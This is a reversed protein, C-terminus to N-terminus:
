PDALNHIEVPEFDEELKYGFVRSYFYLEAGLVREVTGAKRFGHGEGEFELYAYPLNQEQLAAALERAQEPPVIEDESGQFLILPCSLENTHHIPSRKRYLHEAQPYPAILTDLYSAEFKHTHAALSIADAVGYYSAGATFVDHFTLACLAVYGGASGGHIILREPDVIGQQALHRAAQVCEYVDIEGFHGKLRDRYARGYGTSGSYNVDVVAFGRSTWYQTELLLQVAAASTPGGHVTVILPPLSGEPGEHSGSRPPYFFAHATKGDKSPFEVSEPTSLFDRDLEISAPRHVLSIHKAELDLRYLAQSQRPSSAIFALENEDNARMHVPYFATFPTEVPILEREDPDIVGLHDIGERTYICAIRGDSLFDYRSQGLAWAPSGLEAEIPALAEVEDGGWRYLNWWGTRDSVFYLKGDPGWEPQYVAEQPGGAVLATETLSGDEGFAAVWLATGDWPMRPHDWSLYCLVDGNAKFRPAAYFDHGAAVVTPPRHGDSPLAVLENAPPGEKRHDERVCVLWSGDPHLRGDAYRLARAWAPEPTLPLPEGEPDLRYLRQDADNSFFLVGDSVFFDGGGYEHVLTRVSFEPPLLARPEGGADQRRIEYRGGGEARLERWYLARGSIQVNSLTGRSSLGAEAVDAASIPSRWSGYPGVKKQPVNNLGEM